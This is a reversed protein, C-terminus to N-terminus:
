WACRSCGGGGSGGGGGGGGSGGGGAGSSPGVRHVTGMRKELYQPKLLHYKVQVFLVCASAGVIFDPSIDGAFEWQVNKFLPMLPSKEQRKSVMVKGLKPDGSIGFTPYAPPARQM